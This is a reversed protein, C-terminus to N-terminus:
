PTSTASPVAASKKEPRLDYRRERGDIDYLCLVEGGGEERFAYNGPTREERIPKGTLPNILWRRDVAPMTTPSLIARVDDARAATSVMDTLHRERLVLRLGDWVMEEDYDASTTAVEMVPYMSKAYGVGLLTLVALVAVSGIALRNPRQRYRCAVGLLGIICISGLLLAMLMAQRRGSPSFVTERHPRDLPSISLAVDRKGQEAPSLSASLHTVVCGDWLYKAADPSGIALRVRAAEYHEAAMADGKVHAYRDASKAIFGEAAAAGDAAVYLDVQTTTGALSTLRMPFVPKQAAFKVALPHAASEGAGDRALTAVLFVWGQKAYDEVLPVGASPVPALQKDKLWAQLASADNAKLAAVEYGGVRQVSLERVGAADSGGRGASLSPLMISVLLLLFIGVVAANLAWHGSWFRRTPDRASVIAAISCIMVGGLAFWLSEIGRDLDHVMAPRMCMGVSALVDRDAVEISQPEAPVPLIWGVEPSDTVYASEVVLTEVGNRWSIIARQRPIEPMKAYGIKPFKAGNGLATGCFVLLVVAAVVRRAHNM